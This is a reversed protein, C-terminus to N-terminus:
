ARKSFTIEVLTGPTILNDAWHISSIVQGSLKVKGTTIYLEAERRTKIGFNECMFKWLQM